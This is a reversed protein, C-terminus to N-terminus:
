VSPAEEGRRRWRVYRSLLEQQAKSSDDTVIKVAYRVGGAVLDRKVVMGGLVLGRRLRPLQIHIDVYHGPRLTRMMLPCSSVFSLGGSSVDTAQVVSTTSTHRRSISVHVVHRAVSRVREERRRNFVKKLIAPLQRAFCPSEKFQLGYVKGIDTSGAYSVISSIVIPLRLYPSRIQVHVIQAVKMRINQEDLFLLRVGGESVDEVLGKVVRKRDDVHFSVSRLAPLKSRYQKRRDRRCTRHSPRCSKLATRQPM